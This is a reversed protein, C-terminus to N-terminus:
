SKGAEELPPQPPPSEHPPKYGPPWLWLIMGLAILVSSVLFDIVLFPLFLLFGMQFASQLESLVFAPIVVRMQVDKVSTPGYGGLQLFFELKRTRYHKLM